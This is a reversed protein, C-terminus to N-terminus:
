KGVCNGFEEVFFGRYNADYDNGSGHAYQFNHLMEHTITNAWVEPSDGRGFGTEVPNNLLRFNLQVKL